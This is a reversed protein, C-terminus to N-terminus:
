QVMDEPLPASHWTADPNPAMTNAPVWLTKCGWLIQRYAGTQDLGFTWASKGADVSQPPQLLADASAAWHLPAARVFVGVVANSPMKMYAVCGGQAVASTPADSGAEPPDCADGLGDEDTDVQDANAVLPCNDEADPVGDEDSDVPPTIEGGPTEDCADGTGDEDTDVQDANAVLPCNDAANDVGDGDDDGTPTTDCADGTGDEDTDVQDANAVLPCNDAANDVGDGDDDGTPTTDCGDPIGDTDADLADDH